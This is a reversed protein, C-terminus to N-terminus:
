KWTGNDKALIKTAESWAGNQKVLLKSPTVWAGNQKVRVPMDTTGDDYEYTVTMTAGYMRMTYNTNYYSSNNTRKVYFRVAADQLEARTWTGVDSFTKVTTQTNLPQSTGKLTTGCALQMTRVAAINASTANTYSKASATVSKIVANAPIASFDFKYYLYTEAESGRVWSVQAYTSSDADTYANSLPYDAYTSRYAVNVTDYSTPHVSITAQVIAM